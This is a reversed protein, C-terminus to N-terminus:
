GHGEEEDYAADAATAQAVEEPTAPQVEGCAACVLHGAPVDRSAWEGTVLPGECPGIRPSSLKCLPSEAM